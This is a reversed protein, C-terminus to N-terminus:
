VELKAFATLQKNTPKHKVWEAPPFEARGCFPFGNKRCWTAYTTQSRKSIKTNPNDFVFRIDLDPYAKRVMLMKTRDDQEFRGKVEIIMAKDPLVFDPTYTRQVQYSFPLSVKEYLIVKGKGALEKMRESVAVESKSRYGTARRTANLSKFQRFTVAM